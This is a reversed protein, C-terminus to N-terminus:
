AGGFMFANNPLAQFKTEDKEPHYELNSLRVRGNTKESIWLICEKDALDSRIGKVWIYILYNPKDPDYSIMKRFSASGKALVAENKEDKLLAQYSAM